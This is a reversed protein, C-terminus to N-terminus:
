PGIFPLFRGIAGVLTTRLLNQGTFDIIRRRAHGHTIHGLEHAIVGSLEEPTVHGKEMQDIFGRTLFIRGDAIALGNLTPVEHIHARIRPLKMAKGLRDLLPNLQPHDLPTSHEALERKLRWVSFFWIVLSYAIILLLPLFRLM